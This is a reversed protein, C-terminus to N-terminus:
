KEQEVTPVKGKLCNSIFAERARGALQKTKAEASCQQVRKQQDTPGKKPAALEPQGQEARVPVACLAAVFLVSILQRM